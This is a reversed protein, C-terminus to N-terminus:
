SEKEQFPEVAGFSWFIDSHPHFWVSWMVPPHEASQALSGTCPMCWKSLFFFLQRHAVGNHFGLKYSRRSARIPDWLRTGRRQSGWKQGRVSGQM